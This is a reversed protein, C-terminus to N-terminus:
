APIEIDYEAGDLGTITALGYDITLPLVGGIIAGGAAHVFGGLELAVSEGNESILAVIAPCWEDGTKALRVRVSQGKALRSEQSM